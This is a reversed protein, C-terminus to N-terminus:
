DIMVSMSVCAYKTQESGSNTKIQGSPNAYMQTVKFNSGDYYVSPVYIAKKLTYPLQLLITETPVSTSGTRGTVHLVKGQKIVQLRDWSISQTCKDTIDEGNLNNNLVSFEKGMSTKEWYTTNGISGAPTTALKAKYVENNYIVLQGQVYDAKTEDYADSDDIHTIKTSLANSLSLKKNTVDFDTSVDDIYQTPTVTAWSVNGNGDTVLAQGATGDHSPKELKKALELDVDNVTYADLIGYGALTSSKVAVSGMPIINSGDSLARANDVIGTQASQSKEYTEWRMNGTGAGDQGDNIIGIIQQTGDSYNATVPHQKGSGSMTISTVDRGPNGQPGVPGIPGQLGRITAVSGTVTGDSLTFYFTGDGNDVVGNVSAGASGKSGNKINFSKITGDTMEFMIVNNGADQTSPVSRVDQIGKLNGQLTWVDNILKWVDLTNSNIYVNGDYYGATSDSASSVDTGITIGKKVLNYDEEFLQIM